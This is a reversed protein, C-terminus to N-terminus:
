ICVKDAESVSDAMSAFPLGAQLLLEIILCVNGFAIKKESKFIRILHSIGLSSEALTVPGSQQGTIDAM